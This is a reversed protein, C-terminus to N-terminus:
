RMELEVVDGCSSGPDFLALEFHPQASEFGEGRAMDPYPALPTVVRGQTPDVTRLRGNVTLADGGGGNFLTVPLKVTEGPDPFGNCNVHSGEELMRHGNMQLRPGAASAECNSVASHCAANAGIAEVRYYRPTDPDPFADTFTTVGAALTAIPM